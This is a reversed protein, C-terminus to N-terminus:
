NRHVHFTVEATASAVSIEGNEVHATSGEVDLGRITRGTRSTRRTTRRARSAPRSNRGSLVANTAAGLLGERISVPVDPFVLYMPLFSVTVASLSPVLAVVSGGAVIAVVATTMAGFVVAGNKFQAALGPPIDNGYIESFATDLARFM